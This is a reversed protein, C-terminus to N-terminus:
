LPSITGPDSEADTEPDGAREPSRTMRVPALMRDDDIRLAVGADRGRGVDGAVVDGNLVICPIPCRRYGLHGLRRSRMGGRAGRRMRGTRNRRCRDNQWLRALSMRGARRWRVRRLGGDGMRRARRWWVRRLGGDGMRRGRRVVGSRASGPANPAAQEPGDAPWVGQFSAAASVRRPPSSPVPDASIAAISPV